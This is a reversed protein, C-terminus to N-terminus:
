PLELFADESRKRFGYVSNNDIRYGKLEDETMLAIIRVNRKEAGDYCEKCGEGGRDFIDLFPTYDAVVERIRWDGPERNQYEGWTHLIWLTNNKSNSLIFPYFNTICLGYQLLEMLDTIDKASKAIKDASDVIITDYMPQFYKKICEIVKGYKDTYGALAYRGGSTFMVKVTRLEKEFEVKAEIEERIEQTLRESM